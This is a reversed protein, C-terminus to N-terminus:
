GHGAERIMADEEHEKAEAAGIEEMVERIMNRGGALRRALQEVFYDFREQGLARAAEQDANPLPPTVTLFFRVFLALTEATIALDRELRDQQRTIRDLRRVLARDHGEERERAFFTLLAAEVVAAKTMGPRRAALAVKDFLADSVHVNLRPKM